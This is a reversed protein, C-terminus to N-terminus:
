AGTTHRRDVPSSGGCRTRLWRQGVEIKYILTRSEVVLSRWLRVPRTGASPCLPLPVFMETHGRTQRRNERVYDKVATYGGDFGYEDRFARLHAQRHPEGPLSSEPVGLITRSSGTPSM